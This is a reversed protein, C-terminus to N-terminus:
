YDKAIVNHDLQHNQITSFDNFLVSVIVRILACVGRYRVTITGNHKQACTNTGERTKVAAKTEKLISYRDMCPYVVM